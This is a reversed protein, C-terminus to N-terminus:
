NPYYEGCLAYGEDNTLQSVKTPIVTTDPLAGVESATYSPKTSQKAWSPVTPDSETFSQLATDAKGLSTQVDNALDSKPIGTSPKSYTGYSTGDVSGDAKLFQSSTGGTKKFSAAQVQAPFTANQNADFSYLHGTKAMTSPCTWGVGGFGFIKNITLGLYGESSIGTYGFIFQLEGYHSAKVNGYTTIAPINIVNYGSWGQIPVQEAKTVWTDVNDEYDQQTRCRITCYCGSSGNTSVYIVFKNLSTYISAASTYLSVRLMNNTSVGSASTNKGTYFGRGVSFLAVKQENTAGYDVWTNGGDTSYEVAIGAAKAFMTRPAGLESVMAADIPGYSGSFNKGGWELYAEYQPLLKPDVLSGDGRVVRSSTGNKTIFKAATLNGAKTQATSSTNIADTIGYGSLTTAKDAKESLGTALLNKIKGWFYGLGTLDLIHEM